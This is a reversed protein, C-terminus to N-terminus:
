AKKRIITYCIEIFKRCVNLFVVASIAWGLNVTYGIYVIASFTLYVALIIWLFTIITLAMESSMIDRVYKRNTLRGSWKIYRSQLLETILVLLFSVIINLIAPAEKIEKQLVLTQTAYALLEVGAIKGLPTYHQDKLDNMAGVLVIRDSILNSYFAVSDYPVIKFETPTFNISQDRDDAEFVKKGAYLNALQVIFSPKIEGKTPRGLSVTRKIDGYLSRQFNTFGENVTIEDTFFSHVSKTYGVEDNLYDLLKYSFVTTHSASAVDAIRRDALSDDRLGEFVVDVGIARPECENIAELVDAIEGRDYLQTMDVISIVRSTDAEGSEKLANYYIDTLSFDRVSQSVPNLFSLNLALTVMVALACFALATVCLGKM